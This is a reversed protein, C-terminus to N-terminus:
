GPGRGASPWPPRGLADLLVDALDRSVADLSFRRRFLEHGRDALNQRLAADSRLVRLADALAAADGPPCLWADHRHTFAERAAPTDATVVPRATALADFVKNPIVRGAKPSTGFIGLCVHSKAMLPPLERYTRRGLFRISQVGLRRALQHVSSETAGTGVVEISVRDGSRELLHAAEVVYELGHLPIFSAYLFVRFADDDPLPAPRVIEDDAGVWVQRMKDIPVGLTSGFHEMHTATDLVVTTALRCALRDEWRYRIAQLGRDVGRDEATELMSVFADFVVPVHHRLATMRALAVDAHGPFGVLIADWRSRRLGAALKPTRQVYSRPDTITVVSAGARVLAKAM